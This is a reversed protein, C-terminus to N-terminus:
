KIPAEIKLAKPNFEYIDTKKSRVFKPEVSGYEMERRLMFGEDNIWFKDMFYSLKGEPFIYTLYTQYLKASVVGLKTEELTFKSSEADPLTSRGGGKGGCGKESKTWKGKEKKCYYVGDILFTESKSSKGGVTEVVIFHYKKPPIFEVLSETKETLKGGEYNEEKSKNRYATEFLSDYAPRFSQHLEIASIERAQGFAVNVLAIFMSVFLITKRM